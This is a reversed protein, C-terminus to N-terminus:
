DLICIEVHEAFCMRKSKTHCIFISKGLSEDDECKSCCWTTKSGCLSCRGQFSNESIKGKKDIRKRKTPTLHISLGCRSSGDNQILPSTGLDNMLKRRPSNNSRLRERSGGREDYRNDILEEALYGYFDKQKEKKDETIGTYALWSDVICISLLSINIRKSWDRTVLKRELSLDKQRCRNHRDIMACCNYYLECAKPQDIILTMNDPEANEEENEQRLRHRINPEGDSMNSGSCIFYRRERDMWAFALLDCDGEEKRRILGVRDGRKELEISQLHKLPFMKTATKVVGIFKLGEQVLVEAAQVSAFFSDACVLRGSGTWPGILEKLVKVGHLMIAGEEETDTSSYDEEDKVIKLRMMIGSVGCCSDQIECGNEPKRDIAVYHPLGANIWGGGQGYWRSISEDVCIMESPIFNEARYDNFRRVFDDVSRWRFQSHKMHDPRSEPQSSWTMHQWFEDFRNRPMGTKGMAPAPIYRHNSLNSWLDRRSNFEFKTLLILIGFYKLVEGTTAEKIKNKRFAINTLLTCQTLQSPPFMLLFFDLRSMRKGSESGKVLVEGTITQLGWTKKQIHGNQDRKAETNNAMWRVGHCDVDNRSNPNRPPNRTPEIMPEVLEAEVERLNDDNRTTLILDPDKEIQSTGPAVDLNPSVTPPHIFSPSLVPGPALKCSRLNVKSIKSIDGGLEFRAHISMRLHGSPLRESSVKFVVGILLKSKAASGYRRNCESINTVLNAKVIVRAGLVLMENKKYPVTEAM